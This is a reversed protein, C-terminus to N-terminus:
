GDHAAAPSRFDTALEEAMSPMRAGNLSDLAPLILGM